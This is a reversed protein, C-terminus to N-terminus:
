LLLMCFGIKLSKKNSSNADTRATFCLVFCSFFTDYVRLYDFSHGIWAHRVRLELSLIFMVSVCGSLTCIAMIVVVVVVFVNCVFFSVVAALFFGEAMLNTAVSYM